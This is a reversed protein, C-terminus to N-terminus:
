RLARISSYKTQDCKTTSLVHVIISVINNRYMVDICAQSEALNSIMRCSRYVIADVNINKLIISLDKIVDYKFM